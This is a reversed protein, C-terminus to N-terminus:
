TCGFSVNLPKLRRSITNRATTRTTRENIQPFLVTKAPRKSAHDPEGQRDYGRTSDDSKESAVNLLSSRYFFDNKGHSLRSVRAPIFMCIVSM